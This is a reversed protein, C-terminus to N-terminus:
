ATDMAQSRRVGAALNADFPEPYQRFESAILGVCLLIVAAAIAQPMAGPERGRLAGALWAVMLAAATAGFPGLLILGAARDKVKPTMVYGFTRGSLVDIGAMLLFPWKAFRLLRARLHLGRESRWDLYFRQRLLHMVTAVAVLPLVRAWSLGTVARPVSGTALMCSLAGVLTLAALSPQLYNFGHLYSILRSDWPMQGSLSPQVRLKVDLVSRAWRRQQVLYGRWDVPALGRALIEPVFVGRWGRNRYHLTIVLDDADHAAFGGVQQLASMRHVNHCGVVIPYGMGYSAMQITSNYDYTEEAAGRAIFSAPQNYYAQAAQVYGVTSDRFYGLTRELFKPGPIHDPDFAALIDYRDGGIEALWANYNGHKSRAKCPGEAMQYEPRGRRSFHFVGLQHCLAKVAPDDGEDLVWTDHPYRLAMMAQLTQSLMELAESGPVFSTVVAVRLGSVPALFCPRRMKLLLLWRTLPNLMQVLLVASLASFLIPHQRVDDWSVWGSGFWLMAAVFLLTVLSHVALSAPALLRESQATRARTVPPAVEM